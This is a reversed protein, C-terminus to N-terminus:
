QQTLLILTSTLIINLFLKARLVIIAVFILSTEIRPDENAEACNNHQM